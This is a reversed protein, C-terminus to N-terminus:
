RTQAKVYARLVANMRTQYGKGQAKFWGLVDQDIRMSILEKAEPSIVIAKAFWAEGLEPAADPDAAIGARIEEDTGHRFREWDARDRVGV